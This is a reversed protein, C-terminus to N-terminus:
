GALVEAVAEVSRQIASVALNGFGLVLELPHTGSDARYLSM